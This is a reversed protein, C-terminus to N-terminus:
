SLLEYLYEFVTTILDSHATSHLRESITVVEHSQLPADYLLQHQAHHVTLRILLRDFRRRIVQSRFCTTIPVVVVM